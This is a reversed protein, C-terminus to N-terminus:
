QVKAFPVSYWDSFASKIQEWPLSEEGNVNFYVLQRVPDIYGVASNVTESSTRASVNPVTFRKLNTTNPPTSLMTLDVVSSYLHELKSSATSTDFAAPPEASVKALKALVTRVASLSTGDSTRFTNKAAAAEHPDLKGDRNGAADAAVAAEAYRDLWRGYNSTQLGGSSNGAKSGVSALADRKAKTIVGTELSKKIEQTALTKNFNLDADAAAQKLIATTKSISLAM